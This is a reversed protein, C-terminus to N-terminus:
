VFMVNLCLRLCVSSCARGRSSLWWWWWNCGIGLVGCEGNYARYTWWGSGSYSSSPSATCVGITTHEDGTADTLLEVYWMAKGSSIGATARAWGPATVTRKDDSITTSSDKSSTDWQFRTVSFTSSGSIVGAAAAPVSGGGGSSVPSVGVSALAALVGNLGCVDQSFMGTIFRKSKSLKRVADSAMDACGLDDDGTDTLSLRLSTFVAKVAGPMSVFMEM